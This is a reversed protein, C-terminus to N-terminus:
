HGGNWTGVEFILGRVECRWYNVRMGYICYSVIPFLIKYSINKALKLISEPVVPIMAKTGEVGSIEMLKWSLWMGEVEGLTKGEGQLMGWWSKLPVYM